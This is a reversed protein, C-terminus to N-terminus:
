LVAKAIIIGIGMLLPTLQVTLVNMALSPILKPTDSHNKLAGIMAKIGVPLTLLGLLALLPLIGAIASVLLLVYAAVTIACYIVATNKKGLLIPLHKRGGIKDADMDPFENLLLLNLVLLGVIVSAVIAISSYSGTQTQTFATGLTMLGFGLGPGILETLIPLKTLYPTYAYIIVIGGLGIPLVAWGYVVIFYIGIGFVAALMMLGFIFANKAEVEGSTLITSGGSFPTKPTNFDIGSKYDFYINLTNVSMHALLSGVSALVLSAVNITGSTFYSAAVGALVCVPVLLLFNPRTLLLYNKVSSM